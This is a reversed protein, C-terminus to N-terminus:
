KINMLEDIILDEKTKKLTQSILSLAFYTRQDVNIIIPQQKKTTKPMNNKAKEEPDIEEKSALEIISDVGDIWISEKEKLLSEIISIIFDNREIEKEAAKNKLARKM